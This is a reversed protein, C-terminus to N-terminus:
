LYRETHITERKGVKRRTQVFVTETSSYFVAFVLGMITKAGFNCTGSIGATEKTSWLFTLEQPTKRQRTRKCVLVKSWEASLFV